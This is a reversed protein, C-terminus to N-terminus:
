RLNLNFQSDVIGTNTTATRVVGDKSWLETAHVTPSGPITVTGDPTLLFDSPPPLTTQGANTLLSEYESHGASSTYVGWSWGAAGGPGALIAHSAVRSEVDALTFTQGRRVYVEIAYRPGAGVPSRTAVLLHKDASLWGFWTADGSLTVKGNTEVTATGAPADLAGADQVVRDTISLVLAADFTALGHEWAPATGTTLRHYAWTSGALDAGSFSISGDLRQLIWLAVTGLGGGGTGTAAALQRKAGLKLNFGVYHGPPTTVFGNADITLPSPATSWTTGDSAISSFVTVVGSPEVYLTGREWGRSTGASVGPGHFIAAYTWNGALDAQSFPAGAFGTPYPALGPSQPCAALATALSPLVLRLAIAARTSAPLRM